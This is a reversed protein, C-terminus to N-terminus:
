LGMLRMLILANSSTAIGPKLRYDFTLRAEDATDEVTEAFHVAVAASKLDPTDALALDHSTVVGLTRQAILRRLITRVAAQRETTNTGQLVEDLLYLLAGSGGAPMRRSADVITKLRQLAAFFLSVGEALSDEIRISTCVITPPLRMASACVPGGAQALVVNIGIARLLTSKGSMNSGTVFLFTGGPGIRVDNAVRIGRPMLPHALSETVIEPSGASTMVPFAWDPNDHRLGALASLAEVQGIADFWGRVHRGATAQWRELAWLVHFDWLTLANIGFHVLNSQRLDALEMIRNHRLMQRDASTGDSVMEHQLRRLGDAQFAEHVVMSFLQADQRGTGPRGFALGFTRHVRRGLAAWVVLGLLMVPVWLPEEMRGSYQLAALAITSAPLLRTIWVLWPRSIFWPAGEAWEIFRHLGGEDTKVLRGHAVLRQRFDLRASLDAVAEQRQRIAGPDSPEVLWSQLTRHGAPTGPEGLLELLSARGFLDLDRAYLHDRDIRPMEVRPVDDWDRRVRAAQEANVRAMTTEWQQRAEVRAHLGVVVLFAVGGAAGAGLLAARPPGEAKFGMILAAAAALFIAARAWSMALSVRASKAAAGRFTLQRRHYLDLLPREATEVQQPHKGAADPTATFRGDHRLGGADLAAPPGQADIM